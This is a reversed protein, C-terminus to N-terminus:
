VQSALSWLLSCNSAFAIRLVKTWASGRYCCCNWCGGGAGRRVLSGALTSFVVQTGVMACARLWSDVDGGWPSATSWRGTFRAPAAVIADYRPPHCPPPHAMGLNGRCYLYVAGLGFAMVVITELSFFAYTWINLVLLLAAVAGGWYSGLLALLRFTLWAALLLMLASLVNAILPISDTSIAGLAALVIAHL